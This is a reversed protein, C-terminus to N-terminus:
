LTSIKNLNRKKRERGGIQTKINRTRWEKFCPRIHWQLKARIVFCENPMRQPINITRGQCNTHFLNSIDALFNHNHRNINTTTTIPGSSAISYKHFYCIIWLKEFPMSFNPRGCMCMCVYQWATLWDTQSRIFSHTSDMRKWRLTKYSLLPLHYPWIGMSIKYVSYSIVMIIFRDCISLRYLGFRFFFLMKNAMKSM